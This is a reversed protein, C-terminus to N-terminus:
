VAQLLLPLWIAWGKIYYAIKLNCFSESERCPRLNGKTKNEHPNFTIKM